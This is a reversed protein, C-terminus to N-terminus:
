PKRISAVWYAGPVAAEAVGNAPPSACLRSISCIRWPAVKMPSAERGRRRGAHREVVVALRTGQYESVSWTSTALM